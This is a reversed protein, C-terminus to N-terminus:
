LKSLRNLTTPNQKKNYGFRKDYGLVEISRDVIGGPPVEWKETRFRLPVKKKIMRSVWHCFMVAKV